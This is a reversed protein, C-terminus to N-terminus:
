RSRSKPNSLFKKIGAKKLDEYMAQLDFDFKAAYAERHKRVEEVIVDNWMTVGGDIRLSL